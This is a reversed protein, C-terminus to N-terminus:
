KINLIKTNKINNGLYKRDFNILHPSKYNSKETLEFIAKTELIALFHNTNYLTNYPIIYRM